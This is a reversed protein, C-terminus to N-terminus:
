IGEAFDNEDLLWIIQASTGGGPSPGLTFRGGTMDARERLNRIGSGHLQSHDDALREIGSGDDRVELSLRPGERKLTVWVTRADAHKAVNNLLEQVCRYLHTSIRKPIESNKATIEARVSLTPYIEAFGRCFWSTASAAGLTDL